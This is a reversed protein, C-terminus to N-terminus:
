VNSPKKEPKVLETAEIRGMERAMDLPHMDALKSSVEPNKSLYYALNPGKEAARIVEAMEPTVTYTDAYVMERYDPVDKAFDSERVAFEANVRRAREAAQRQRSTEEVEAQAQERAFQTLYEAYKGEDYDFDALTKDPEQQTRPKQQRAQELEEEYQRARQEAIRRAREESRHKDVLEDIRKQFSDKEETSSDSPEEDSEDEGESEEDSAEEESVEEDEVEVGEAEAEPTEIEEETEAVAADNM